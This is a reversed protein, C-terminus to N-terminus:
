RAECVVVFWGSFHPQQRDPRVWVPAFGANSQPALRSEPDHFDLLVGSAIQGAADRKLMQELAAADVVPWEDNQALLPQRSRATQGGHFLVLGRDDKWDPRSDILLAIRQQVPDLRLAEFSTIELSMGLVGVVQGSDRIPVSCTVTLRHRQQSGDAFSRNEFVPSLNPRAIPRAQRLQETTLERQGGHFYTRHAFSEGHFEKGDAAQRGVQIGRQDNVVWSFAPLAADFRRRQAALWADCERHLQSNGSTKDRELEWRRLLALLEPDAAALELALWRNEVERGLMKAAFTASTHLSAQRAAHAEHSSRLLALSAVLALITVSVLSLLGTLAAGRHRRTWRLLAESRTDRLVSVPQDALYREVDAALEEATAYRDEPEASMAKRCVADLAKSCRPNAQRPPVFEGRIVKQRLEHVTGKTAFPLRGTLMVYLTAGLSYIDTAPTLFVAGAAQEPSMFVLTGAGGRSSQSTTPDALVTNASPDSKANPPAVRMALGWDVVLTEGYRGLMIHEPKLDRNIVCRNHAYAVTHCAAVFSSLLKHFELERQTRTMAAARAYFDAIAEKLSRGKIYRMVYFPRGGPLQGVGYVPVIGPHQMRATIEREARFSALCDPDNAFRELIFKLAVERRLEQDEAIFVTGLGGKALHSQIVYRQETIPMIGDLDVDAPAPDSSRVQARLLGDVEKLGRIQERLRALFDPAAPATDALPLAACLEEPSLELGRSHAEDWRALLEDLTNSHAM